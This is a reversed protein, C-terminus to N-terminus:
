YLPVQTNFFPQIASINSSMSSTACTNEPYISTFNPLGNLRMEVLEPLEIVNGMNCFGVLQPLKNLSLYKLKHFTIVGDGGNGCDVLVELIRCESVILRELKMLDSAFPATFLYSLNACKFVTLDKLNSFPHGLLHGSGVLVEELDNMGHVQLYLLETKGFLENMRSELLEDKNTVLMLENKFSHKEFDNIEELGRGISIKFRELKTFKMNKPMDNYDFFEVELASLHESIEALEARNNDTFRIPKKDAVRMYLEELKVLRKLVGDDIRLNVCDTLDLLKLNKMNGIASPLYNIGCRAFSLVELNLLNGIASCDFILSCKYLILTRLKTSFELPRPLLPFQMKQYAIVELSEMREYFDEPFKLSKDGNMLRLLSINPYRFDTPLKSVGMCTASIIKCSDRMGPMTSLKSIDGHNIVWPHDGKSVRGLVFSLVLDHMKVCGIYDSDILLNASRLNQVCTNTRDRAEGLTSVENLLRLGWAYRTLEEISIDFDEPFSGCLRFIAKEEEKKIYDYSIKIIEQINEDLNNNKLLLRTDRWVNAERFKLTTAILKIALPLFGCRRM